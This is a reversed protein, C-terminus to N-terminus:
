PLSIYAPDSVGALSLNSGIMAKLADPNFGRVVQDRLIIVPVAGHQDLASILARGEESEEIDYELFEISEEIMFARAKACVPCWSTGLMILQTKEDSFHERYDGARINDSPLTLWRSSAFAGLAVGISIVLLTTILLKLNIMVQM